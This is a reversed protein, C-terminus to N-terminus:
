AICGHDNVGAGAVQEFPQHRMHRLPRALLAV